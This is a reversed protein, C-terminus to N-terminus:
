VGINHTATEATRRLAKDKKIHWLSNGRFLAFELKDFNRFGHHYCGRELNDLRIKRKKGNLTESGTRELSLDELLATGGPPAPRSGLPLPAGWLRPLTCIGAADAEQCWHEIRVFGWRLGVDAKMKNVKLNITAKSKHVSRRLEGPM